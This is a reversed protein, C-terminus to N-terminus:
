DQISPNVPSYSYTVTFGVSLAAKNSGADPYEYVTGTYTLGRRLDRTAQESLVAAVISALETDMEAGADQQIDIISLIQFASTVLVQGYELTANEEVDFMARGLETNRSYRLGRVANAAGSLANMIQTRITPM